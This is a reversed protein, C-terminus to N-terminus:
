KKSKKRPVAVYLTTGTTAPTLSSHYWYFFIWTEPDSREVWVLPKYIDEPTPKFTIIVDGDGESPITNDLTGPFPIDFDRFVRAYAERVAHFAALFKPSSDYLHSFGWDSSNSESLSNM